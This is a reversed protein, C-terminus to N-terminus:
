CVLNPNPYNDGQDESVNDLCQFDKEVLLYLPGKQDFGVIDTEIWEDAWIEPIFVVIKNNTFKAELNQAPSKQLAYILRSEGFDVTEDIYGDRGFRAVDSMSLRYRLSNGKIRVKM